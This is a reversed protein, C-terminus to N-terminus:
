KGLSRIYGILSDIQEKTLPPEVGKGYPPMKNELKGNFIIERLYDDKVQALWDVDNMPMASAGKGRKGHCQVCVRHYLFGGKQGVGSELHCTKCKPDTVVALINEVKPHPPQVLTAILSLQMRDQVAGKLFVNVTKIVIGHKGKTNFTVEMNGTEGPQYKKLATKAVTCGCSSKTKLIKVPGEGENRFSFTHSVVEGEMVKGFDFDEEGFVLVGKKHNEESLVDPPPSSFFFFFLFALILNRM